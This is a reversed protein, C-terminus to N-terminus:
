ELAEGTIASYQAANIIGDAVAHRLGAISIIGRRYLAHLAEFM